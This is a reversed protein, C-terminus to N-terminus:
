SRPMFRCLGRYQSAHWDDYGHGELSTSSRCLVCTLCPNRRIFGTGPGMESAPKSPVCPPTCLSPQLHSVHEWAHMVEAVPCEHGFDQLNGHRGQPSSASRHRWLFGIVCRPNWPASVHLSWSRQPTQHRVRPAFITRLFSQPESRGCRTRPCDYPQRGPPPATASTTYLLTCHPSRVCEAMWCAPVPILLCHSSLFSALRAASCIDVFVLTASSECLFCAKPLTGCLSSLLGTSRTPWLASM